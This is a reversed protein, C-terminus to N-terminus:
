FEGETDESVLYSNVPIESGSYPQTVAFPAASVTYTGAPPNSLTVTEVEGSPASAGNGSSGVLKGNPDYALAAFFVLALVFGTLAPRIVTIKM